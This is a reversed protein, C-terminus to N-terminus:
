SDDDLAFGIVEETAAAVNGLGMYDGSTLDHVCLLKGKAVESEESPYNGGLDLVHSEPCIG